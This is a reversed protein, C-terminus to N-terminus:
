SHLITINKINIKRPKSVAKNSLGGINPSCLLNIILIRENLGIIIGIAIGVM